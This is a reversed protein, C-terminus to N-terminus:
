GHMHRAKTWPCSCVGCCCRCLASEILVALVICCTCLMSPAIVAPQLHHPQPHTVPCPFGAPPQVGHTASPSGTQLHKSSSSEKLSGCTSRTWVTGGQVQALTKRV